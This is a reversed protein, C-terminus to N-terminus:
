ASSDGSKWLSFLYFIADNDSVDGKEAVTEYPRYYNAGNRPFYVSFFLNSDDIRRTNGEIRLFVANGSVKRDAPAGPM